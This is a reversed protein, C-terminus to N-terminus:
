KARKTQRKLTKLALTIVENEKIDLDMSLKKCLKRTEPAIFVTYFVKKKIQHSM